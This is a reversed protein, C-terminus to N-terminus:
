VSCEFTTKNVFTRIYPHYSEGCYQTSNFSLFFIMATQDQVATEKPVALVRIYKVTFIYFVSELIEYKLEVM